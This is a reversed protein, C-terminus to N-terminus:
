NEDCYKEICDEHFYLDDDISEMPLVIFMIM